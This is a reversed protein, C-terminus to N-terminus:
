IAAAKTKRAKQVEDEIFERIAPKVFVNEIGIAALAQALISARRMEHLRKNVVLVQQDRLMCYGGEFDGKEYRLQIGLQKVIEELGTIIHLYNM